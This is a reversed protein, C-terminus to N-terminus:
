PRLKFSRIQLFVEAAKCVLMAQGNEWRGELAGQWWSPWNWIHAFGSPDLDKPGVRGSLRQLTLSIHNSLLVFDSGIAVSFLLTRVTQGLAEATKLNFNLKIELLWVWRRGSAPSGVKNDPKCGCSRSAVSEAMASPFLTSQMATQSLLASEQFGAGVAAGCM